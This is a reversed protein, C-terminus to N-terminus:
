YNEKVCKSLAKTTIIRLLLRRAQSKFFQSPGSFQKAGPKLTCSGSEPSMDLTWIQVMKINARGNEVVGSPNM